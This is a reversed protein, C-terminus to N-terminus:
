LFRRRKFWFLLSVGLCLLLLLVGAYGYRWALEPMHEFNMGYIGTVLTLPFFVASIVTLTQVVRNTRQSAAAFHLQVAAEIDREQTGAHALVRGVHEILDRLKVNQANSLPKRTGRKFSDLADLQGECLSELRRAQRRCDLLARWDNMGNDPDLLADQLGEFHANMPGHIALFRDVMMDLIHHALDFVTKPSRYSNDDIRKQLRNFSLADEARVTVLVRDFLFFAASRTELPMPQDSPGLGQFILMDYASTGDFFSPHAANLSDDVHQADIEVQLWPEITTAWTVSSTRECDVWLLGEKPTEPLASLVQAPGQAPFQVIRM